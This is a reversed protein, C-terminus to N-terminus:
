RQTNVANNSALFNPYNIIKCIQNREVQVIVCLWDM